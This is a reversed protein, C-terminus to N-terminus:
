QLETSRLSGVFARICADTRVYVCDVLYGHQGAETEDPCERALLLAWLNSENELCGAAFSLRWSEIQRSALLEQPYM